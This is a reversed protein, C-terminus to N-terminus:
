PPTSTARTSWTSAVVRQKTDLMIVRLQEQVLQEMEPAVLEAAESPQRIERGRALTRGRFRSVEYRMALERLIALNERLAEMLARERSTAM